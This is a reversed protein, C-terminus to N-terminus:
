PSGWRCATLAAALSCRCAAQGVKCLQYHCNDVLGIHKPDLLSIGAPKAASGEAAKGLKKVPCFAQLVAVVADRTSRGSSPPAMGPTPAM